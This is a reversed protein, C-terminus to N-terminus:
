RLLSLPPLALMSNTLTEEENEVGVPARNFDPM